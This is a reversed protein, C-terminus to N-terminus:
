VHSLLRKEDLIRRVIENGGKENASVVDVVLLNSDRNFFVSLTNGGKTPCSWREIGDQPVLPVQPMLTEANKYPRAQEKM